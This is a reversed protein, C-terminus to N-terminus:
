RGGRSAYIRAQRVSEAVAAIKAEIKAQNSAMAAQQAQLESILQALQKEKEEATTQARVGPLLLLAALLLVTAGHKM